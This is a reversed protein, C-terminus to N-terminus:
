WISSLIWVRSPATCLATAAASSSSWPCGVAPRPSDSAFSTLWATLMTLHKFAEDIARPVERTVRARAIDGADLLGAGEVTAELERIASRLQSSANQADAADPALVPASEKLIAATEPLAPWVFIAFREV